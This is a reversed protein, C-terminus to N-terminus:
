VNNVQDLFYKYTEEIGKELTFTHEWGFEKLRSVDVLKQTMGVPKSLDHVFDGNFGIVKAITEYYENITFDFGLGVNLLDPMKEFNDIAYWIFTALDSAFMFERRATGDGWIEVESNGDIKAKHIKRIVAPIMHSHKPDFKDWKGYLNCPIITKYDFQLDEKKIYSGLRQTYVKAIAYGENTPELEGKLILDEKLPNKADKPYMCSSGLNLINRVGNKRAALLLNRGMDINEVLYKVPNAINSQIGGVIGATHIIIDPKTQSIFSDVEAFNLLNLNELKPTILEYNDPAMDVINSGVMGESGSIYVKKIM